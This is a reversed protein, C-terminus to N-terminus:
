KREVLISLNGRKKGPGGGDGLFESGMTVGLYSVCLNAGAKREGTKLGFAILINM